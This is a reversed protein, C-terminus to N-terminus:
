DSFMSSQVSPLSREADSYSLKARSAPKEANSYRVVPCGTSAISATFDHAAERKPTRLTQVPGGRHFPATAPWDHASRLVVFSSGAIFTPDFVGTEVPEEFIKM